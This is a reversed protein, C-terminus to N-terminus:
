ISNMLFQKLNRIEIGTDTDYERPLELVLQGCHVPQIFKKFFEFHKSTSSDSAKVEICLIPVNDSTVLFDIENGDKTRLYHLNLQHGFVDNLYHIEKLLSCAVLNELRAGTDQVRAIDYFYYKPEKLLSRSINQHYPTIKFIAYIDELMELWAKVSKPDVQLDNALNAFSISGGVRTKLLSLLVEITKISRVSYLDLFDQRLIIDLHTKQWRRYFVEDYALFSETAFTLSTGSQILPTKYKPCFLKIRFM